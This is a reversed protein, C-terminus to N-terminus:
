SKSAPDTATRIIEAQTRLDAAAIDTQALALKRNIEAHTLADRRQNESHFRVDSQEQKQAAKAQLIEANTQALLMREQIKAQLEPSIGGQQQSQAQESAMIEKAMQTLVNAMAALNTSMVKVVDKRREDRAIIQIQEQCHAVINFLGAIKEAAISLGLPQQMVQQVQQGITQIMQMLFGTYALRNVGEKVIFPAGDMLVTFAIQAYQIDDSPPQPADPIVMMAEDPNDTLANYRRRAIIRQGDPDALPFFEQMLVQTVNMEVAKNGGGVTQEPVVDWSEVDLMDLPVGEKQINERFRQVMPDPNGKLCFRRCIERYEYHAQSALQGVVASTMSISMNMRGLFEQATMVKSTDGVIEPIFGQSSESMLQKAQTIGMTILQYDASHRERATVMSVGDPIVGFNHLDILGLKERNDDSVNRFLTLLNQFMHDYLRNRLKNSVMCAGYLLYGISRVSHIRYPAVNSCNGIYWHIVESWDDAYDDKEYLFQRERSVADTEKLHEPAINAYDLIMKRCWKGSKEDRHFFDWALLKPLASSASQAAGEKYDEAMKEPFLWRNGQYIPALGKKYLTALFAKVYDKNWGPDAMKGFAANELQSWTLERYISLYDLNEMSTYTGSPVLVDEVGAPDPVPTRRNRWVLPGPGHLVVQAHAAERAAKYGRSRKLERNIYKTIVDSWQARKQVPGKDIRVTFYRDSKFFSNNIQNTANAAIRTGELWNASTKLNQARREEESEPADGNFLRNILTRNGMVTQNALVMQGIETLVSSPSDFNM